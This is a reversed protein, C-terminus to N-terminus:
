KASGHFPEESIISIPQGSGTDDTLGDFDDMNLQPEEAIPDSDYIASGDDSIYYGVAIGSPPEEEAVPDNVYVAMGNGANQDADAIEPQPVEAIPNNDNATIHNEADPQSTEDVPSHGAVTSGRKTEHISDAGKGSDSEKDFDAGKGSDSAKDFDAGKGSRVRNVDSASTVSYIGVFFACLVVSLTLIGTFISVTKSKKKFYVIAGLREKLLRKSECLTVSGLYEKYKGVAAMADLLTKGYEEAHGYGIKKLVAEDCSFECEKTIESCMLHILPNYWHLCVTIQVLWKYFMDRRKYHTLEHMMIYSFDNEPIDASPLVICPRFFGTLMPSSILRNVCLEIPRKVGAQGAIVSFRDLIEIDSVPISGANVYRMFSQYITVKRVLMGLATVLWIHSILLATKNQPPIATPLDEAPSKKEEANREMDVAPASTHIDSETQNQSVPTIMRDITQYAKGMLNTEPGFPLLLRLIVILWIYYQWQRSFKDKLFLKGLFLILILLSGSFSMSLFIKFALEM